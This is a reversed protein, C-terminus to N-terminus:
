WAHLPGESLRLACALFSSLEETVLVPLRQPASFGVRVTRSFYVNGKGGGAPTTMGVVVITFSILARDVRSFSGAVLRSSFKHFISSTSFLAIKGGLLRRTWQLSLRRPPAGRGPIERSKWEGAPLLPRLQLEGEAGALCSIKTNLYPRIARSSWLSGGGGSKCDVCAFPLLLSCDIPFANGLRSWVHPVIPECLFIIEEAPLQWAHSEVHM